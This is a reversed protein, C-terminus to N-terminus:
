YLRHCTDIVCPTDRVSCGIDHMRKRGMSLTASRAAGATPCACCGAERRSENKPRRERSGATASVVARAMVDVQGIGTARGSVERRSLIGRMRTSENFIAGIGTACPQTALAFYRKSM